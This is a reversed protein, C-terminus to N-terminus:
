YYPYVVRMYPITFEIFIQLQKKCRFISEMNLNTRQGNDYKM